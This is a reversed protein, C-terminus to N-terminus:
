GCEAYHLVNMSLHSIGSIEIFNSKVLSYRKNPEAKGRVGTHKETAFSQSIQRRKIRVRKNRNEM